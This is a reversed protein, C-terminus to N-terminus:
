VTHVAANSAIESQCAMHHTKRAVSSGSPIRCRADSAYAGPMASEARM